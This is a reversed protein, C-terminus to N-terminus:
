EKAHILQNIDEVKITKIEEPSLSVNKQDVIAIIRADRKKKLEDVLNRIGRANGFNDQNKLEQQILAKASELGGEELLLHEKKLIYSFIEVLEDITYDEFIIEQSFRSKLGQNISLLEDMEEGYGALIVMLTNRRNEVEAVLTNVAELGFSDQEGNILTYAEDIFLIGGDAEDIKKVVKMATQGLYGAVLDARSVELFSNRKLVGLKYYIKGLIRAVTTKGTGANGKFILHLTGFGEEMVSGQEQMMRQIRIRNVMEQIKGKASNLGTLGKLEELLQELTEEEETETVVGIDEKKITTLAERTPTEKTQNFEKMVRSNKRKIIDEVINRVGRANGFDKVQKKRERLLLAVDKLAGEELVLNKQQLMYQFIELLEEESYDEFIVEHSFRSQLGQNINLLEDMKDAYGALIVMLSDRRNEVEAVLTNVAETGFSDQDGNILTYAEDIFLIGGDAEEIKKMVKMATQGVHGAVLDARSVEVIVNKKLVGLKQYINGLLRAVTTKGTGANGKFILHLTGHGEEVSMGKEKMMNNFEINNVMEEVKEKASKLGTLGKLEELLDEITKESELKRGAVIEIDEKTIIDFQNKSVGGQTLQLQYIRADLVKVVEEFLNRVGRANGFNPAKSKVELMGYLLDTADSSFAMQNGKVMGKFIEVMEETTYDPFEIYNTEPIRSKFGPNTNLFEEMEKKYGALIVMMSDKNNEMQAIIEDVAEHGFTDNDDRCIAYAEDIFLVGGAAQKFKEQVLKATHGQYQGVIESRTCEVVQNGRPLIGLSRYVKGLMRAVTTKGTGPNGTFLLHLSGHGVKRQAGAEVAMSAVTASKIRARVQEKVSQLGVLADLQKLIEEIGEEEELEIKFDEPLLYVMDKETTDEKGCYRDAMHKIADDLYRNMSIANMFEDSNCEADIKQILAKKCDEHLRFAKKTAEKEAIELLELTSYQPIELETMEDLITPRINRIKRMALPSGTFIFSIEEKRKILIQELSSFIDKMASERYGDDFVLEEMNEIVVTADKINSFLSEIGGQEQNNQGEQARLIDRSSIYIPVDNERIAFDYLLKAVINALLTKGSGREGSIAFHMKVIASSFHSEERDNQLRLVNYYTSLEAQVRKMGAVDKFYEAISEPIKVEEKQKKPLSTSLKSVEEENACSEERIIGEELAEKEEKDYVYKNLYAEVTQEKIADLLENEEQFYKGSPFLMKIRRTIKKASKEDSNILYAQALKLMSYEEEQESQMHELLEIVEEINKEQFLANIQSEEM